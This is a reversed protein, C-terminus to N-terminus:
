LDDFNGLKGSQPPAQPREETEVPRAMGRAVLNTRVDEFREGANVRAILESAADPDMGRVDLLGAGSSPVRLPLGRRSRINALVDDAVEGHNVRSVLESMERENIDSINPESGTRGLPAGSAPAFRQLAEISEASGDFVAAGSPAPSSRRFKKRLLGTLITAGVLSIVMRAGRYIAVQEDYVDITYRTEVVTVILSWLIPSLISILLSGFFLFAGLYKVPLVARPAFSPRRREAIFALVVAVLLAVLGRALDLRLLRVDLFLDNITLSLHGFELLRILSRVLTYFVLVLAVTLVRDRPPRNTDSM